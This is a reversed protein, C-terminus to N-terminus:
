CPVNSRNHDTLIETDGYFTDLSNPWPESTERLLEKAALPSLKPYVSLLRALIAAAVPAAFSSGSSRKTGGGKWLLDVNEGRAAFEVLCGQRYFLTDIRDTRVMSVSIVSPFHSPWERFRFNENSCATVIHVGKLYAEDIWTKFGMLYKSVGPCGISCNLIDYGMELAQRVGECLIPTRSGLQHGLVRFSGIEAEPAITHIVGAIATGHGYIDQGEGATVNLTNGESVIAVDDLLKMRALGPHVAEIGTDLVAVKIGKGTGDLIAAKANDPTIWNPVHQASFQVGLIAGL